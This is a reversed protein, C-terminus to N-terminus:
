IIYLVLYDDAAADLYFPTVKRIANLISSIIKKLSNKGYYEENLNGTKHVEWSHETLWFWNPYGKSSEPCIWCIVFQYKKM